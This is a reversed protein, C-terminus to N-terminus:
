FQLTCMDLALPQPQGVEDECNREICTSWVRTQTMKIEAARAHRTTIIVDVTPADPLFFEHNPYSEGDDDIPDAIDLVV